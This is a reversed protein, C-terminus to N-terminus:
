VKTEIEDEKRAIEKEQRHIAKIQFYILVLTALGVIMQVVLFIEKRKEMDM